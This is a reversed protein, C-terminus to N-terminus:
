VPNGSFYEFVIKIISRPFFSSNCICFFVVKFFHDNLICVEVKKLDFTTTTTTTTTTTKITTTKIYYYDNFRLFILKTFSLFGFVYSSYVYVLICTFQNKKSTCLDLGAQTGLPAQIVHVCHVDSPYAQPYNPSSIFGRVGTQNRANCQSRVLCLVYKYVYKGYV